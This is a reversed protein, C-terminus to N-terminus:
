AFSLGQDTGSRSKFRHIIAGGAGAPFIIPSRVGFFFFFFMIFQIHWLASMEAIGLTQLRVPVARIKYFARSTLSKLYRVNKKKKRKKKKRRIDGKRSLFADLVANAARINSVLTRTGKERRVRVHYSFVRCYFKLAWPIYLSKQKYNSQASFCSIPFSYPIHENLSAQSISRNLWSTISICRDVWFKLNGLGGSTHLLGPM